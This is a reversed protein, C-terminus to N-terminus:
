CLFQFWCGPSLNYETVTCSVAESTPNQKMPNSYIFQMTLLMHKVYVLSRDNIGSANLDSESILM